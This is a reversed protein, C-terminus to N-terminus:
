HRARQERWGRHCDEGYGRGVFGRCGSVLEHFSLCRCLRSLHAHRVEPCKLDKKLLKGVANQGKFEPMKETAMSLFEVRPPTPAECTCPHFLPEDPMM